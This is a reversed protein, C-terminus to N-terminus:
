HMVAPMDIRRWIAESMSYLAFAVLGLGVLSLWFTGFPLNQLANLAEQLGPPETPEYRAGGSFLMGAVILFAVGRAILGARSIPRVWRMVDESAYFYKEFKAKWGKIIHAIGVGLPVLAVVYVLYNSYKWGLLGSLFDGNGSGGGASEGISSGLLGLTFLALLTYAIASGLLGARILLGKADTGHGEPDTIAQTLRWAVYAVLGVVMIWLLAEGFPQGLLQQIAGKTGVTDGSGIGAMFAFAGVILYVVGRAAYGSRALWVIGRSLDGKAHAATTHM